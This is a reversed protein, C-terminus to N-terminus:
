PSGVEMGATRSGVLARKEGTRGDDAPESANLIRRIINEKLWAMRTGEDMRDANFGIVDLHPVKVAQTMMKFIKLGSVLM